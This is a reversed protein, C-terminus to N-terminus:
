MAKELQVKIKCRGPSMNIQTQLEKNVSVKICAEEM